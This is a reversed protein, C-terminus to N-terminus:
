NWIQYQFKQYLQADDLRYADFRDNFKYNNNGGIYFIIFPTPNWQMLQQILYDNDFTDFGFMVIDDQFAKDWNRIGSWLSAM